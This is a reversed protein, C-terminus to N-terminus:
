AEIRKRGKRPNWPRNEVRLAVDGVKWSVDGGSRSRFFAVKNTKSINHHNCCWWHEDANKNQVADGMM